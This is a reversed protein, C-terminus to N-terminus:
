GYVLVDYDNGVILNDSVRGSYSEFFLYSQISSRGTHKHEYNLPDCDTSDAISGIGDLRIAM